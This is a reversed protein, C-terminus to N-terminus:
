AVPAPQQPPSAPRPVLAVVGKPLPLLRAPRLAAARLAPAVVPPAGQWEPITSVPSRRGAVGQRLCPLCQHPLTGIAQLSNQGCRACLRSSVLVRRLIASAVGFGSCHHTIGGGRRCVCLAGKQEEALRGFPMVYLDLIELVRDNM